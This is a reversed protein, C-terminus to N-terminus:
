LAPAGVKAGPTFTAPISIWGNIVGISPYSSMRSEDIRYDPMRTLVARIMTEFMM